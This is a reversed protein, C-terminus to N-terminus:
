RNNITCINVDFHLVITIKLVYFFCPYILESPFRRTESENLCFDVIKPPPVAQTFIWLMFLRRTFPLDKSICVSNLTIIYCVLSM